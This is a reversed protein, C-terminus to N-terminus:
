PNLKIYVISVNSFLMLCCTKANDLVKVSIEITSCGLKGGLV